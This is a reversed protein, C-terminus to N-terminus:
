LPRQGASDLGTTQLLEKVRSETPDLDNLISYPLSHDRVYQPLREITDVIDNPALEGLRVGASLITDRIPAIDQGHLAAAILIGPGVLDAYPVGRGSATRPEIAYAFFNSM